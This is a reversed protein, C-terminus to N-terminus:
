TSFCSRMHIFVFSFKVELVWEERSVITAMNYFVLVQLFEAIVARASWFPCNAVNKIAEIIPPIYCDLILPHALVALLNSCVSDLEDDTDSNQLVCLLPLLQFYEPVM